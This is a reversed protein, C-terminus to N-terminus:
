QPLVVNFYTSKGRGIRKLYKLKALKLIHFRLTRPSIYSFYIQLQRPTVGNNKEVFHLIEQQIRSLQMRTVASNTLGISSSKTIKVANLNAKLQDQRTDLAKQMKPVGVVEIDRMESYITSQQEGEQLIEIHSNQVSNLLEVEKHTLKKLMDELISLERQLIVFNLPHSLQKAEAIILMERIIRIEEKMLRVDESTDPGFDFLWAHGFYKGFREFSKVITHILPSSVQNTAFLNIVRFCSQRLVLFQKKFLSLNM